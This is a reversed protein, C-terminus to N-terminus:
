QQAQEQHKAKSKEIGEWFREIKRDPGNDHLGTAFDKVYIKTSKGQGQKQREIM